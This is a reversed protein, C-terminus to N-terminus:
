DEADALRAIIREAGSVMDEVVTAAPHREHIIGVSQGAYLAMSEASGLAIRDAITHDVAYREVPEGAPGWAVVEGDGPRGGAPPSGAEMWARVTSNVLTRHPADPWGRDFLTTVVTESESAELALRAHDPHVPSEDTLLFRTGVWAAQAGLALVAALGRADAIGGAAVVPVPAVADVVAPVLPLTAVTGWVHGGAELGQAVVIDVGADLAARADESSGVTLM